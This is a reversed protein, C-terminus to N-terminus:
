SAASVRDAFSRKVYKRVGRQGCNMV